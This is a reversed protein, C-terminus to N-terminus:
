QDVSQDKEQNSAVVKRYQDGLQAAERLRGTREYLQTLNSLATLSRPQSQLALQYQHIAEEYFGQETYVFGLNLQTGTEGVAVLFHERAKKFDGKRGYALGLNNHMRRDHPTIKLGKRYYKIAAGDDGALYRSYGLNNYFRANRSDLSIAKRYETDADNFQRKRDYCVGLLNHAEAFDNRLATAAVLKELASDIQGRDHLAVAEDFLSQAAELGVAPEGITAGSTDAMMEGIGDRNRQMPIIRMKEIEQRSAERVALPDTKRRFLGAILRVPATVVRKFGGRKKQEGNNGAEELGPEAKVMLSGAEMGLSSEVRTRVSPIAILGMLLTLGLLGSILITMM